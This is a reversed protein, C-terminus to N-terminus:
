VFISKKSTHHNYLLASCSRYSEEKFVKVRGPYFKTHCCTSLVKNIVVYKHVRPKKNKSFKLNKECNMCIYVNGGHLVRNEPFLCQKVLSDDMDYNKINFIRLIKSGMHFCACMKEPVSKCECKYKLKKGM